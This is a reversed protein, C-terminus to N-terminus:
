CFALPVDSSAAPFPIIGERLTNIHALYSVSEMCGCPKMWGDRRRNTQGGVM